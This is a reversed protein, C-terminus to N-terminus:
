GHHVCRPIDGVWFAHFLDTACVATKSGVLTYGPLCYYTVVTGVTFSQKSARWGGFQPSTPKLCRSEALVTTLSVMIFLLVLDSHKMMGFMM